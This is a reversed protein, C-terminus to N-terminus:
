DLFVLIECAFIVSLWTMIKLLLYKNNQKGTRTNM